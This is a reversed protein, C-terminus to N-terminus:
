VINTRSLVCWHDAFYFTNSDQTCFICQQAQNQKTKLYIFSSSIRYATQESLQCKEQCAQQSSALHNIGQAFRRQLNMRYAFALSKTWPNVIWLEQKWLAWFGTHQFRRPMQWSVNRGKGWVWLWHKKRRLWTIEKWLSGKLAKYMLAQSGSIEFPTHYTTYFTPSDSIRKTQTYHTHTHTYFTVTLSGKHTYTHTHTSLPVTLSGKLRQTHTYQTHTTGQSLHRDYAETRSNPPRQPVRLKIGCDSNGSKQVLSFTQGPCHINMKSIQVLETISNCGLYNLLVFLM